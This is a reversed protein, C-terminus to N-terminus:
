KNRNEQNIINLMQYLQRNEVVYPKYGNLTRFINVRGNYRNRNDYLRKVAAGIIQQCDYEGLRGVHAGYYGAPQQLIDEIFKSQTKLSGRGREKEEVILHKTRMQDMYFHAERRLTRLKKNAVSWYPIYEIYKVQYRVNENRRIEKVEYEEPHQRAYDVDKKSDTKLMITSTYADCGPYNGCIYYKKGDQKGIFDGSCLITKSGCYPCISGIKKLEDYHHNFSSSKKGKTHKM